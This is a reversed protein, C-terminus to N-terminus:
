GARGRLQAINKRVDAMSREITRDIERYAQQVWRQGQDAARLVHYQPATVLRFIAEHIAIAEDYRRELYAQKLAEELELMRPQLQQYMDRAELAAETMREGQLRLLRAEDAEVANLAGCFRCEVQTGRAGQLPAGCMACRMVSTRVEHQEADRPM